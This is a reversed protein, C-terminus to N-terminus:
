DYLGRLITLLITLVVITALGVGLWHRDFWDNLKDLMVQRHLRRIIRELEDM